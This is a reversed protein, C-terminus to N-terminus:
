WWPDFSFHQRAKIAGRHQQALAEYKGRHEVCFAELAEHTLRPSLINGTDEKVLFAHGDDEHLDAEFDDMIMAATELGESPGGLLLKIPGTSVPLAPLHWKGNAEYPKATVFHTAGEYDFRDGPRVDTIPMTMAEGQRELTLDPM